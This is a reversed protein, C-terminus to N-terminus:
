AFPTKHMIYIKNKIKIYLININANPRNLNMLLFICCFSDRKIFSDNNKIFTYNTRSYYLSFRDQLYIKRPNEECAHFDLNLTADELINGGM